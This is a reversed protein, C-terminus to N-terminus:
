LMSWTTAAAKCAQSCCRREKSATGAQAAGGSGNIIQRNIPIPYLDGHVQALVRHEYPRWATFRSLFAVVKESNTHFIHPGYDHILVGHADLRDHANGAIHPRKDIVLVRHGADALVRASAAGAFGAGVVLFSM